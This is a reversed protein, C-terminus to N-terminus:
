AKELTFTFSTGRNPNSRINITQRHAEIIHKVIALGLGTGGQERSRSRDIRFFREFVRSHYQEDIGIGDDAIEVLLHDDLDFFEVQTCGNEKGYKISNSVLNGIAELIRKKDAMVFVARGAMEGVCQLRINKAKASMEQMEFIEQILQSLNFREFELKLEPSELMSIKELDSVITILRNIAKEAKELYTKNITDDELGGDLLTLIYGQITFIPTKLEHSVNGLFEKRYRALKKLETIESAKNEAWERVKENVGSFADPDLPQSIKEEPRNGNLIAKYIPKIKSDILKRTLYSYGPLAIAFVSGMAILIFWFPQSISSLAMLYGLLGVWLSLSFALLLSVFKPSLKAM